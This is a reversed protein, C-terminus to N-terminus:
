NEIIIFNIKKILIKIAFNKKLIIKMNKQEFKDDKNKM